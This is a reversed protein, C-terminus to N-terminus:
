PKKLCYSLWACGLLYIFTFFMGIGTLNISDRSPLGALLDFANFALDLYDMVMEGEGLGQRCRARKGRLYDRSM